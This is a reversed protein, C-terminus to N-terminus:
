RMITRLSRKRFQKLAIIRTDPDDLRAALWDPSVLANSSQTM